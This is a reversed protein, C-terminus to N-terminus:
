VLKLRNEIELIYKKALIKRDFNQKAYAYGQSGMRECLGANASLLLIGSVIDNINEPEAYVGCRAEEVLMRSVGDIAMLIPKKCAMYDFTKNSYVTKFTDVKKLVSVGVDSALIYKLVERKSMSDIFEVNLLHRVRALEM